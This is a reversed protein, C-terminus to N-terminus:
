APSVARASSLAPNSAIVSAIREQILEVLRAAIEANPNDDRRLALLIRKPPDVAELEVVKVSAADALIMM